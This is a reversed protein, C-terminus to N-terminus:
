ALYVLCVPLCFCVIQTKETASEAVLLPSAVTYCFLCCVLPLAILQWYDPRLNSERGISRRRLM